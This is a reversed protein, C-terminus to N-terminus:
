DHSQRMHKKFAAADFDQAMNDALGEDIANQLSTIAAQRQQDRRILDRVYDSANSYRGDGTQREVWLKMKDPVSINMTAMNMDKDTSSYFNHCLNGIKL